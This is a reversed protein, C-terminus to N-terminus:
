QKTAIGDGDRATLFRREIDAVAQSYGRAYGVGERSGDESVVKAIVYVMFAATVGDWLWTYSRGPLSEPSSEGPLM